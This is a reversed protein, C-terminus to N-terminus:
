ESAREAKDDSDSSTVHPPFHSKGGSDRASGLNNALGLDKSNSGGSRLSARKRAQAEAEEEDEEEEEEDDDDDAAAYMPNEVQDHEQEQEQEQEEAGEDEDEDEDLSAASFIATLLAVVLKAVAKAESTGNRSEGGGLAEVGKSSQSQSKEAISVTSPLRMTAKRRSSITFLVTDRDGRRVTFTARNRIETFGEAHPSEGTGMPDMPSEPEPEPELSGTETGVPTTKAAKPDPEPEATTDDKTTLVAAKLVKEAEEASDMRGNLLLVYPNAADGDIVVVLKEESFDYAGDITAPPIEIKRRKCESLLEDDSLDRYTSSIQLAESDSDTQSEETTMGDEKDDDSKSLLDIMRERKSQFGLTMRYEGHHDKECAGSFEDWSEKVRKCIDMALPTLVIVFNVAILQPADVMVFAFTSTILAFERNYRGGCHSACNMARNKNSVSYEIVTPNIVEQYLDNQLMLMGLLTAFVQLEGMIRLIDIRDSKYPSCRIVILVYCFSMVAGIFVQSVTGDSVLMLVGTLMLKKSYEVVQVSGALL